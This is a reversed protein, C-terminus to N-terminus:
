PVAKNGRAAANEAWVGDRRTAVVCVHDRGPAAAPGNRDAERWVFPSKCTGPGSSGVGPQVRGSADRNEASATDKSQKTVCAHDGSFAERWVFGDKCSDPGYPLWYAPASWGTCSSGEVLSSACAEVFAVYPKDRNFNFLYGCSKGGINFVGCPFPAHDIDQQQPARGIIGYRIIYFDHCRPRDYVWKLGLQTNNFNPNLSALPRCGPDNLPCVCNELAPAASAGLLACGMLLYVPIGLHRRRSHTGM